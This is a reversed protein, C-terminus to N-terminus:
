TFDPVNITYTYTWNHTHGACDSYTFTYVMDGNCAPAAPATGAVATVPKGCADTVVPPTPAVADAPCNVTSTGNAPLTFDPVNITYTYTWNHTHGACDSYTFTYVMDGNCAPAAPATGAVATVPKGCADTVVPPTPAVADAPCNVTSTGNAPLTFDPVNITYTYTWNHTHGACDSYTFTYVMDGNCAPAAPATGAVATVPKGCADTVVPPTPAVADAPCNVTSTGNAPLTFDPVNITYTYTWNHTHGACDSYTFTYVMDGNCAPAAPATGAVATVPKGCADTVVPPTPAVADAPCNVTSTGNAPLTFDPVNITYTYTWNHTHGACDSYTFTYVMDGNCAPAAPATGAVATVPKGCADTVVPPTPAVADAPCNVTSTGNAPLTFDPVNITYTYTWNHTHGACDSYTFTYVMDGNCAPASPATGAVATVPKGCADTVVPPTPAVADAPCNVTSTGNAPLTFDPVNITYTYTWNHTHGACDSYTFTYVMDGNCAPAAPATGAVATVPKGCADTVVPPTPAVADAPCNVTSTGNAPLTFDPVNITYTYTWNHTHGACDSYTFTYVMDGNCAPASPATGAVATVPKGCADTVVPPTPAVADAPCNVTSTGNAPLTFDPVNITYTYTWNHTHGACDSYTFTYVMDGNCAPAAPATGAVATVPKGCADTVVPPTPAVADAPCNVTSTGNAPLTFDPVNITYTYTWNHTHGACDSYTFTYVMTGNCAIPSPTTVRDRICM